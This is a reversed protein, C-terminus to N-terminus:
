LGRRRLLKKECKDVAAPSYGISSQRSKLSFNESSIHSWCRLLMWTTQDATKPDNPHKLNYFTRIPLIKFTSGFMEFCFKNEFM